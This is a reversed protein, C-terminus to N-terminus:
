VALVTREFWEEFRQAAEQALDSGPQLMDFARMDCHNVDIEAPVGAARLDEIYQLTETYFPEGDGVFTYAPPLNSYDKQWSPSAYPSVKKRSRSRLYFWWGIHNKRTNWIRGHNDRSSDTDVNSIMPYLPIQFVIDVKKRDRALMCLAVSLGGGASEGGVVLRDPRFGLEASHDKMFLLARYCDKLAAPYPKKWALTYDPSVVIAGFKRVLNEARSMYVMEKMGLFYGGGHIWLVGPADKVPQKPRLVLAPMKGIRIKQVCIDEAPSLNLQTLQKFM